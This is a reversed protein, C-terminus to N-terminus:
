AVKLSKLQSENQAIAQRYAEAAHSLEQQTDATPSSLFKNFSLKLASRLQDVETQAAQVKKLRLKAYYIIREPSLPKKIEGKFEGFATIFKQNLKDGDGRLITDALTADLSRIKDIGVAYDAARRITKENLKFHAALLEARTASGNSSLAGAGTLKLYSEVAHKKNLTSYLRGIEYTRQDETLNRRNMQNIAMWLKVEDLSDFDMLVAKISTFGGTEKNLLKCARLRTFGDVLVQGESPSNWLVIPDRVQGENLIQQKLSQVEEDSRYIIFQELEPLVIINGLQVTMEFTVKSM